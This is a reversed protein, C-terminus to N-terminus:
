VRSMVQEIHTNNRGGKKKKLQQANTLIEVMKDFTVHKIGTLRRFKEEELSELLIRKM